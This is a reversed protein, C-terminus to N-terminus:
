NKGTCELVRIVANGPQIANSARNLRKVM